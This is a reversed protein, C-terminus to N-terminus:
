KFRINDFTGGAHPLLDALAPLWWLRQGKAKRRYSWYFLATTAPINALYMATHGTPLTPNLEVCTRHHLCRQTLEVDSITFATALGTLILFKKDIVRRKPLPSAVIAEIAPATPQALRSLVLPQEAARIASPANINSAETPTQARAILPLLVVALLLAHATRM